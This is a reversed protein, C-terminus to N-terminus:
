SMPREACYSSKRSSAWSYQDALAGSLITFFSVEEAKMRGNEVTETSAGVERSRTIPKEYHKFFQKYTGLLGPCCFDVQCTLQKVWKEHLHSSVMAWYEGLDNQVPTGSLVSPM